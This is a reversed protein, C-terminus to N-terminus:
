DRMVVETVAGVEKWNKDSWTDETTKTVRIQEKACITEIV